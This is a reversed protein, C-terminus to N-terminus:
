TRGSLADSCCPSGCLGDTKSLPKAVIAAHAAVSIAPYASHTSESGATLASPVHLPMPKPHVGFGRSPARSAPMRKPIGSSLAHKIAATITRTASVLAFTREPNNAPVKAM